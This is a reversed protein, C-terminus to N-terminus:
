ASSPDPRLGPLLIRIALSDPEAPDVVYQYFKLIVAKFLGVFLGVFRNWVAQLLRCWSHM